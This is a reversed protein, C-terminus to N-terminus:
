REFINYAILEIFIINDAMEQDTYVVVKKKSFRYIGCGLQKNWISLLNNTTIERKQKQSSRQFLIM